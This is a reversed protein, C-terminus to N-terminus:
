WSLHLWGWKSDVKSAKLESASEMGVCRKVCFPSIGFKLFKRNKKPRYKSFYIPLILISLLDFIKFCFIISLFTTSQLPPDIAFQSSLLHISMLQPQISFHIHDGSLQFYILKIAVIQIAHFASLLKNQNCTLQYCIITSRCPYHVPKGCFILTWLRTESFM